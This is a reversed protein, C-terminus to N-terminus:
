NIRAMGEALDRGAVDRAARHAGVGVARRRAGRLTVQQRDGRISSPLSVRGRCYLKRDVAPTRAHADRDRSTSAAVHRPVTRLDICASVFRSSRSGARRGCARAVRM